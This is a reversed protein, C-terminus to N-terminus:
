RFYRTSRRTKYVQARRELRDVEDTEYLSGRHPSGRPSRYCITRSGKMTQPSREIIETCPYPDEVEPSRRPTAPKSVDYTIVPQPKEERLELGLELALLLANVSKYERPIHVRTPEGSERAISYVKDHRSFLYTAVLEAHSYGRQCLGRDEKLARLPNACRTCHEAHHEYRSVVYMEDDQLESELHVPYEYVEIAPM